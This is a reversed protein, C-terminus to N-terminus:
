AHWGKIIKNVSRLKAGLDYDKNWDSGSILHLFIGDHMAMLQEGSGIYETSIERRTMTHDAIYGHMMGGSDCAQGNIVGSSFDMGSKTRLPNFIMLGPWPYVVDGRAQPVYSVDATLYDEDLTGCLFVDHDLLMTVEGVTAVKVFSVLANQHSRSDMSVVKNMCDLYEFGLATAEARIRDKIGADVSNDLVTVSYTMRLYKDFSDCQLALYEPKNYHLTFVRM